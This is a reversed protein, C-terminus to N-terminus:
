HYSRGYANHLNFQNNSMQRNNQQQSMEQQMQALLAFQQNTLQPQQQGFAPINPRVNNSYNQSQNNNFMNQNGLNFENAFFQNNLNPMQDGGNNYSQNYPNSQHNQQLLQQQYFPINSQIQHRPAQNKMDTNTAITDNQNRDNCNRSQVNKQLSGMINAIISEASKLDPRSNSNEGHSSSNSVDDNRSLIENGLIFQDSKIPSSGDSKQDPSKNEIQLENEKLKKSTAKCLDDYEYDDDDDSDLITSTQNNKDRTDDYFMDTGSGVNSSVKSPYKTEIRKDYDDIRENQNSTDNTNFAIKVYKRLKEVRTPDSAELKKMYTHLHQQEEASLDEFNQLLTQLDADTLSELASSADQPLGFEGDHNKKSDDADISAISKSNSEAVTSSTPKMDESMTSAHNSTEDELKAEKAKRQKEYYYVVLKELEEQTVDKKGQAILTAAIKEAIVRKEEEPTRQVDDTAIKQSQAQVSNARAAAEKQREEPTKSKEMESAMHIVKAIDRIARRVAKSRHKEVMDNNLQAKLKEKVTELLVCNVDNLLMEDASNAKVKELALAKALLEVVKPGLSPGLLEELATLLRLVTVVTVPSDSDLESEEGNKEEYIPGRLSSERGYYHSTYYQSKPQGAQWKYPHGRKYYDTPEDRSYHGPPSGDHYSERSKPRQQYDRERMRDKRDIERNDRERSMRDREHSIRDREYRKYNDSVQRERSGSRYDKESHYSRDYRDTKMRKSSSARDDDLEVLSDKIPRSTKIHFKEKLETTRERADEPLNLSKRIEKKKKEIAEENLETM